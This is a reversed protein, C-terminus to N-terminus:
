FGFYTRIAPGFASWVSALGGATACISALASGILRLSALNSRSERPLAAQKSLDGLLELAESRKEPELEQSNAIAETLNKLATAVEVNGSDALSSVTVTLADINAMEGQNFIGVNHIHIEMSQPRGEGMEHREQQELFMYGEPSISVHYVNTRERLPKIHKLTELYDLFFEFESSSSADIVPYELTTDIRVNSGHSQSKSKIFELLQKSKQAATTNKHIQAFDQWNCENLRVTEGRTNMQRTHASLYRRLNLEDESAINSNSADWLAILTGNILFRGCCRCEVQVWDYRPDEAISGLYTWKAIRGCPLPCGEEKVGIM